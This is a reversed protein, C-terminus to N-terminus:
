PAQIHQRLQALLHQRQAPTGPLAQALAEDSLSAAAKLWLDAATPDLPRQPGAPTRPMLSVVYFSVAWVDEDSLAPFGEMATNRLGHKVAFFASLPSLAAMRTKDQFNAPRPTLTSAALGDGAGKPGHCASCHADFVQQGRSLSPWRLPVTHMGATALIDNRVQQAHQKIREAPVKAQILEILQVIGQRIGAQTELAKIQASVELASRSLVLQEAYEDEDIVRGKAVALVYDRSVYDLMQAVYDATYAPRIQSQAWARGAGLHLPLALSLTFVCALALVRPPASRHLAHLRM